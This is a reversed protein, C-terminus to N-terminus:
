PATLRGSIQVDLTVACGRHSASVNAQADYITLSPTIVAGATVTPTGTAPSVATWSAVLDPTAVNSTSYWEGGLALLWDLVWANQGLVGLYNAEWSIAWKEGTYSPKGNTIGTQYSAGSTAPVSGDVTLTGAILIAPNSRGIQVTAGSQDALDAPLELIYEEADTVTSFTQISSFSV